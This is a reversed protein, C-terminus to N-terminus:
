PCAITYPITLTGDDAAITLTGQSAAHSAATATLTATAGPKLTGHTASIRLAPPPTLSWTVPSKSTDRLTLVASAGRGACTLSLHAPTAALHTTPTSAKTHLAALTLLGTAASLILVAIGLVAWKHAQLLALMGRWNPVRVVTEWSNEPAAGDAAVPTDRAAPPPAFDRLRSYTQPVEAVSARAPPPAHASVAPQKQSSLLWHEGPPAPAAGPASVPQPAPPQPVSPSPVPLLADWESRTLPVLYPALADLDRLCGALLDLQTGVRGDGLARELPLEGRERTPLMRQRQALVRLPRAVEHLIQTEDNFRAIESEGGRLWAPGMGAAFEALRTLFADLSIDPFPEGLLALAADPSVWERAPFGAAVFADGLKKTSGRMSEVLEVVERMVERADALASYEDLLDDAPLEDRYENMM